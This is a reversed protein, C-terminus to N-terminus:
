TQGRTGPESGPNLEALDEPRIDRDISYAERFWLGLDVMRCHASCFPYLEPLGGAYEVEKDCIACRYTKMLRRKWARAILAEGM